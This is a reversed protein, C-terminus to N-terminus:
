GYHTLPSAFTTRVASSFSLNNCPTSRSPAIRSADSVVHYLWRPRLRRNRFRGSGGAGVAYIRGGATRKASLVPLTALVKSAAGAEAKLWATGPTMGIRMGFTWPLVSGSTTTGTTPRTGTGTPPAATRHITTGRAAAFFARSAEPPVRQTKSLSARITPTGTRTGNGCTGTCTTSVWRTPSSRRLRMPRGDAGAPPCPCLEELLEHRHCRAARLTQGPREPHALAPRDACRAQAQLRQVPHQERRRILRVGSHGSVTDQVLHRATHGVFPLNETSMAKRARYPHRRESPKERAIWRGHAMENPV